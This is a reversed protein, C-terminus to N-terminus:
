VSILRALDMRVEHRRVKGTATRPIWDPRVILYESPRLAVPLRNSALEFAQRRLESPTCHPVSPDIELIAAFTFAGPRTPTVVASAVGVITELEEEIHSPVVKAGGIYFVDDKRGIFEVLGDPGRRGLDGTTIWGDTPPRSWSRGTVKWQYCASLRFRLEGFDDNSGRAVDCEVGSMLRFGNAGPLLSMVPGGLETSGYSNVIPAQLVVAARDALYRSLPASGVGVSSLSTIRHGTREQYRVLMGLGAPMTSLLTVGHRNGTDVTRRPDFTDILVIKDGSILARLLIVLGGVAAINLPALWTPHNRVVPNLLATFSRELSALRHLVVASPGTTGSTQLGILGPQLPSSRLPQAQDWRNASADYVDRLQFTEILDDRRSTPLRADVLIISREALLSALVIPISSYSFDAQVLAPSNQDMRQNIDAALQRYTISVNGDVIAVQDDDTWRRYAYELLSSM